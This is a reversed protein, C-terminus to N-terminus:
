NKHRVHAFCDAAARCPQVLEVGHPAHVRFFEALVYVAQARSSMSASGFLTLEVREAAEAALASADGAAMALVIRSVAVAEDQALAPTPGTSAAWALILAVFISRHVHM